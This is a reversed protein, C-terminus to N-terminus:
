SNLWINKLEDRCVVKTINFSHVSLQEIFFFHEEEGLFIDLKM